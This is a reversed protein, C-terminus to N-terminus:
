SWETLLEKEELNKSYETYFYVVVDTIIEGDATIVDILGRKFLDPSGEYDDLVPIYRSKIEMLQGHIQNGVGVQNELCPYFSSGMYLPYKNKTKVDQISGPIVGKSIVRHNDSKQKLTGYVFIKISM